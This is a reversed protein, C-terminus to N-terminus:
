YPSTPPTHADAQFWCREFLRQFQRTRWSLFRAKHEQAELVAYGTSIRSLTSFFGTLHDDEVGTPFKEYIASGALLDSAEESFELIEGDDSLM